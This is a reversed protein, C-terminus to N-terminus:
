WTDEQLKTCCGLRRPSRYVELITRVEKYLKDIKAEGEEKEHMLQSVVSLDTGEEYLRTALAEMKGELDELLAQKVVPSLSWHNCDM